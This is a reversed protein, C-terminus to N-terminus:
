VCLVYIGHNGDNLYVTDKAYCLNSVLFGMKPITKQRVISLYENIPVEFARNLQLGILTREVIQPLNDFRHEIVLFEM